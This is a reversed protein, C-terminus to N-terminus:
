FLHFIRNNSYFIMTYTHVYQRSSNACFLDKMRDFYIWQKRTSAGSGSRSELEQLNKERTYAQKFDKWKKECSDVAFIKVM